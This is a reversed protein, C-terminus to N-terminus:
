GSSIIFNLLALTCKSVWISTLMCRIPYLRACKQFVSKYGKEDNDHSQQTLSNKITLKSKNKWGIVVTPGGRSKVPSRLTDLSASSGTGRASILLRGTPPMETSSDRSKICSASKTSLFTSLSLILFLCLSFFNFIFFRSRSSCTLFRFRSGHWQQLDPGWKTM